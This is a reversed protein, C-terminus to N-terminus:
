GRLRSCPLWTLGHRRWFRQRKLIYLRRAPTLVRGDSLVPVSVKMCLYSIDILIPFLNLFLVNPSSSLPESLQM